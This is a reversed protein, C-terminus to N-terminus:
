ETRPSTSSRERGPTAESWSEHIEAEIGVRSLAIGLALGGIGAGAVLTTM